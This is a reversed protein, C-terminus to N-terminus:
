YVVGDALAANTVQKLSVDDFLMTGGTATKKALRISKDAGAQLYASYSAWIGSSVGTIPVGSDSLTISYNENGSTGSKVYASLFYFNGSAVAGVERHAFQQAAGIRTIELCNGTNGGAISDLTCESGLWVGVVDQDNLPDTCNATPALEGGLASEYIIQNDVFTGSVDTLFLTGTAGLDTVSLITATAGSPYQAISNGGTFVGTQNDFDLRAKGAGM